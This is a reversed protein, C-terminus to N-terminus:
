TIFRLNDGAKYRADVDADRSGSLLVIEIPKSTLHRGLTARYGQAQAADQYNLPHSPRKFEILLYHESFDAALLLDPRKSASKGSFNEEAYDSVIRKLTSNSAMTSYKAGLVWLSNEIAKHVDKELTEPRAVLM